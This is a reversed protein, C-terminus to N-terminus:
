REYALLEAVRPSYSKQHIFCYGPVGQRGPEMVAVLYYGPRNTKPIIQFYYHVCQLFAPCHRHERDVEALDESFGKRRM